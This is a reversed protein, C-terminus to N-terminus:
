CGAFQSTQDFGKLEVPRDALPLSTRSPFLRDMLLTRLRSPARTWRHPLRSRFRDGLRV